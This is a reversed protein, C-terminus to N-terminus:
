QIIKYSASSDGMSVKMLLLGGFQKSVPLFIEKSTHSPVVVTTHYLVRGSINSIIFEANVDHDGSSVADVTVGNESPQISKIVVSDAREIYASSDSPGIDPNNLKRDFVEALQENDCLQLEPPYLISRCSIVTTDASSIRLLSETTLIPFFYSPSVWSTQVRKFEFDTTKDQVNVSDNQYKFLAESIYCKINKITDEDSILVGSGKYETKSIGRLMKLKKNEGYEATGYIPAVISDQFSSFLVPLGPNFSVSTQRNQIAHLFLSDNQIKILYKNKDRLYIISDNDRIIDVELLDGNVFSSLDYRWIFKDGEKDTTARNDAITSLMTISVENPAQENDDSAAVKCSFLILLFVIVSSSIITKMAIFPKFNKRLIFINSSFDM